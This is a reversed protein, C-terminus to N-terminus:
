DAHCLLAARPVPAHSAARVWLNPRPVPCCPPCRGPPAPSARRRDPSSRPERRRLRAFQETEALDGTFLVGADPVEIVQDGKTHGQGTTRLRVTRGGLDLDHRDDYVM